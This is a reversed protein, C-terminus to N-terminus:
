ITVIGLQIGKVVATIRNSVNLKKITNSLHFEVTKESISMIEGIEWNTKGEKCWRLCETEKFTLSRTATVPDGQLESLRSRYQVTLAHILPIRGPDVRAEDRLSLSILDVESGPGHLPITVGSHVGLDRCDELFTQQRSSLDMRACVDSWMFPRRASHIHQVIPDIEDWRHSIYNHSYGEPFHNWPIATLRQGRAKAFVANQYGEEEVAELYLNLLETESRCVSSASIFEELCAVM